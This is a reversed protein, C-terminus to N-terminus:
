QQWRCAKGFRDWRNMPLRGTAYNWAAGIKRYVSPHDAVPTGGKLVFRYIDGITMNNGTGPDKSGVDPPNYLYPYKGRDVTFYVPQTTWDGTWQTNYGGEVRNYVDNIINWWPARDFDLAGFWVAGLRAEDDGGAIAEGVFIFGKDQLVDAKCMPIMLGRWIGAQDLMFCRYRNEASPDKDEWYQMLLDYYVQASAPGINRGYMQASPTLDADPEMAFGSGTYFWGRRQRLTPVGTVGHGPPESAEGLNFTTWLEAMATWMVDRIM